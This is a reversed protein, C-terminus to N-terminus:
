INVKSAAWEGIRELVEADPSTAVVLPKTDTIDKQIRHLDEVTIGATYEKIEELDIADRL